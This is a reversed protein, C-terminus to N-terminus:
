GSRGSSGSGTSATITQAYQVLRSEFSALTDLERGVADVLARMADAVERNKEVDKNVYDVVLANFQKQIDLPPGILRWVFARLRGKYSRDFAPAGHPLIDWSRNLEPVRAADIASPASPLAAHSSIANDLATLADNYRRDAELRERELRTAFDELPQTAL